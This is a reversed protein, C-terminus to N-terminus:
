QDEIVLSGFDKELNDIPSWWVDDGPDTDITMGWRIGVVEVTAGCSSAYEYVPGGSDDYNSTSGYGSPDESNVQDLLWVDAADYYKDDNTSVVKSRKQGSQAGLHAVTDDLAVPPNGRNVSTIEAHPDSSDITKEISFNDPQCSGDSTDEDINVLSGHEWDVGSLYEFFAADTYRCDSGRSCSFTSPDAM